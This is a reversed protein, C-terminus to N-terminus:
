VFEFANTQKM